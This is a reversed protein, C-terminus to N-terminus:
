NRDCRPTKPNYSLSASMLAKLYPIHFLFNYPYSPHAASLFLLSFYIISFVKDMKKVEHCMHEFLARGKTGVSELWMVAGSDETFVVNKEFQPHHGKLSNDDIKFPMALVKIFSISDFCM